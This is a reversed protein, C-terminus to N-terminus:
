PLTTTHERDAPLGITRMTKEQEQNHRLGILNLSKHLHGSDYAFSSQRQAGAQSRETICIFGVRTTAQRVGLPFFRERLAM